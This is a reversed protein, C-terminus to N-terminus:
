TAEGATTEAVVAIPTVPRATQSQQRVYEELIAASLATSSPAFAVLQVARLEPQAQDAGSPAAILSFALVGASAAAVGPKVHARISPRKVLSGAYRDSAIRTYANGMTTGEMTDQSVIAVRM